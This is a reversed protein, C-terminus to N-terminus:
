WTTFPYRREAEHAMKQAENFVDIVTLITAALRAFGGFAPWPKPTPARMELTSM